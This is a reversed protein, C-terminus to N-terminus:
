TLIGCSQCIQILATTDCLGTRALMNKRHKIITNTSIFLTEAIKKTDMGMALLQLIEKERNSLIDKTKGGIEESSAYAVKNRIGNGYEIRFWINDSKMLYNVKDLTIICLSPLGNSDYKFTLIRVMLRIKEGKQNVYSLGCITVRDSFTPKLRFKELVEGLWENTKAVFSLHEHNLGALYESFHLTDSIHIGIQEEINQSVALVKFNAFDLVAKVSNDNSSLLNLLEEDITNDIFDEKATSLLKRIRSIFQIFNANNLLLGQENM